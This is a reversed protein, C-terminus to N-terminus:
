ALTRRLTGPDDQTSGGNGQRCALEIAGILGARAGLPSVAIPLSRLTLQAVYARVREVFDQRSGIGGGFVVLAPDLVSLTSVVALAVTKAQHDIVSRADLDGAAARTYVDRASVEAAEGGKLSAYRRAVGVGGAAAELSGQQQNARDFPDDGVPLFGIEGAAGHAGRQLRGSAIIGMGVGTGVAVFVFDSVGIGLGRHQEALTAMNVDNDLTVPVGVREGLTTALDLEDVPPLNPALRLEGGAGDVVAPVGVAMGAVRAWAIGATDALDRAMVALQAVVAEADRRDTVAEAEAVPRGSVESLLVRVNSGGLDAGLVHDSM